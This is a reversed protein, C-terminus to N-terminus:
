NEVIGAYSKSLRYLRTKRAPDATELFGRAVWRQCLLASMRPQYGFLEAIDKATIERSKRFLTLTRRQKSDLDRLLTSRDQGGKEAERQAEARVKKSRSQWVRLLIRLGSPSTLSPEAL